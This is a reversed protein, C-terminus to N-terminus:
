EVLQGRGEQYYLTPVAKGGAIVDLLRTRLRHHNLYKTLEPLDGTGRLLCVRTNPRFLDYLQPILQETRSDLLIYRTTDLFVTASSSSQLNELAKDLSNGIGMAGTDTEIVISGAELHIRISEVPDLRDVRIGTHETRLLFVALLALSWKKWRKM